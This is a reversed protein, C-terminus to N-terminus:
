HPRDIISGEPIVLPPSLHHEVSDVERPVNRKREEDEEKGVELIRRSEQRAREVVQEGEQQAKAIKEQLKQEVTGAKRKALSQRAYYGFATGALLALIGVLFVILPNM